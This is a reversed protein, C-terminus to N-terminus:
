RQVHQLLLFLGVRFYAIDIDGVTDNIQACLLFTVILHTPRKCQDLHAKFLPQKIESKNVSVKSMTVKRRVKLDRSVGNMPYTIAPLLRVSWTVQYVDMMYEICPGSMEGFGWITIAHHM